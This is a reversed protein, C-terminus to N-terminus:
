PLMGINLFRATDAIVSAVYAADTKHNNIMHGAKPLAIFSKPHQAAEYILRANHIEVVDDEPDHFVMVAGEIAHINKVMDHGELEDVFARTVIFTRGSLTVTTTENTELDQLVHAFLHKSHGPQFPSGISAVLKASPIKHAMALMATGGLSHGILISPAAGQSQLFTVASEIDSLNARFGSNSFEGGSHGLGTFDFRLVGIGQEVLSTSIRHMAPIDKTCTFCHAALTYAIPTKDPLDFRAALEIGSKNTFTIKESRM